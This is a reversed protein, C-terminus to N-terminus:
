RQFCVKEAKWLISNDETRDKGEFNKIERFAGVYKDPPPPNIIYNRVRSVGRCYAIEMFSQIFDRLEEKGFRDVYEKPLRESYHESGFWSYFCDEFPAASRLGRDENFVITYNCLCKCEIVL